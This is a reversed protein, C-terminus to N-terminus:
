AERNYRGDQKIRFQSNEKKNIRDKRKRQANTKSREKFISVIEPVDHEPKRKSSHTIRIRNRCM